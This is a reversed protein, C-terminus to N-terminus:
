GGTPADDTGPAPARTALIASVTDLVPTSIGHRRAARQVAGHIADHETPRGAMTDLYMSTVGGAGALSRVFTTADRDDLEVGEARGVARVEELLAAAADTIAPQALVAMPRRTLATFGNAVVNIALKVWASTLHTPSPDIVVPTAGFLERLAAGRADDPVILRGASRHVIHGPEVLEAGCYVVSPVIAAGHVLPTLREVAEIGNQMAVVVTDPGCTADFWVAADATQHAKLGVLVWDFPVGDLDAPDTSVTAPGSVPALESEVVYTDFGRRACSVVDHETAALHAAFFCGVSGPGVVAVRAM